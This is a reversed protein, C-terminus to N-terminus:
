FTKKFMYATPAIWNTSILEYPLNFEKLFKELGNSESFKHYEYEDFVIIGGPLLRDWLYKLTNYTARELDVDIYILSVRFGPNENIFIPLTDQVDGMVLMYKKHINMKDLRSYVSDISLENNDVKSYVTNMKDKDFAGDKNLIKEKQLDSFIDFGIIKKNSNPCFIEVFKSFTAMGSGKFVGVEVIDGPLHMVESFYKYRHLLKGILKTDDSFIFNNFADYANDSPMNKSNNNCIDQLEKSM